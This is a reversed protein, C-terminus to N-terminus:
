TVPSTPVWPADQAAFAEPMAGGAMMRGFGPIVAFDSAFWLIAGILIAAPTLSLLFLVAALLPPVPEAEDRPEDEEPQRRMRRWPRTMATFILSALSFAAVAGIVLWDPLPVWVRKALDEVAVGEPSAFAGAIALLLGIGCVSRPGLRLPPIGGTPDVPM